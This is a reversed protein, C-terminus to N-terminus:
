LDGQIPKVVIDESVVNGEQLFAWVILRAIEESTMMRATNEKRVDQSWMPTETAGPHINIVRINHKRVEERLVNTYGLLGTKSATYASSETFIKKAASSIINIITGDGDKIMHPLVYKIAYISGLLNTNIIDNIEQISNDEAKKFSTVGANNVLCNISHKSTIKKVVQDVNASSAINCPHAEINLKDKALEKKLRELETTRRASVFVECGVKAFEKAAAWGIGSSAGTIWIGSKKDKM